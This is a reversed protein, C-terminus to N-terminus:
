MSNETSVQSKPMQVQNRRRRESKRQSGRYDIHMEFPRFSDKMQRLGARGTDSGDNLFAFEQLSLLLNRLQFYALGRVETDCKREFSCALGPRIAGGFAFAVLRGDVVVVEGKLVTEPLTGVLDIARRSTGAGGLTGLADRHAKRWRRLLAHCAEAHLASYPMVEVDPLREILSVNRRVTYYKKGGLDNYAGPSYIYQYKRERVRIRAASVADVDKADIHMVRASFNGNFDNARDICRRLVTVNMPAPAVYLDLRPNSDRNRWLFICLSGEDEVLLMASRGPRNQSLLYPFYYQWGMQQGAEVAAMYADLDNIDLVKLGELPGNLKPVGMSDEGFISTECLM